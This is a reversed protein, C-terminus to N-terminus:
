TIFIVTVLINVLFVEILYKLYKVLTGFKVVLLVDVRPTFRIKM